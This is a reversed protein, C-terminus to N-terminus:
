KIAKKLRHWISGSISVVKAGESDTKARMLLDAKLDLLILEMEAARVYLEQYGACPDGGDPMMCDPLSENKSM